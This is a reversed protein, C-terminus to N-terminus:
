RSAEKAYHHSKRKNHEYNAYTARKQLTSKLSLEQKIAEIEESPLESPFSSEKRIQVTRVGRGGSFTEPKSSKLRTSAKKKVVRKGETM